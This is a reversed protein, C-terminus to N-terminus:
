NLFKLSNENSKKLSYIMAKCLFNGEYESSSNSEYSINLVDLHNTLDDM